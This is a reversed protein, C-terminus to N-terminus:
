ECTGTHLQLCTWPQSVSASSAYDGCVRDASLCQLLVSPRLKFVDWYGSPLHPPAACPPAPRPPACKEQAAALAEEQSRAVVYDGSVGAPSAAAAAEDPFVYWM